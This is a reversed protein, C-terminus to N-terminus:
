VNVIKYLFDYCLSETAEQVIPLAMQDIITDELQTRWNCICVHVHIYIICIYKNHYTHVNNYMHLYAYYTGLFM